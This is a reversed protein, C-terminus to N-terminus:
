GGAVAARYGEDEVARILAAVDAGGAVRASGRELDVDATSVGAVSELATKVAKQCHGCTMGEIKLDTM